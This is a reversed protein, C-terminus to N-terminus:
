KLKLLIARRKKYEEEGRVHDFEYNGKIGRPIFSYGSPHGLETIQRYFVQPDPTEFVVVLTGPRNELRKFKIVPTPGFANANYRIYSNM